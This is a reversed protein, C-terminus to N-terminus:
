AAAPPAVSQREVLEGAIVVPMAPLDEGRQAKILLEVAMSVTEAVPQDIATLPPQVFRVVPTNDFSILSLDEPVKLGLSQALDNTAITMQDNSAVIATPRDKRGLLTGLHAAVPALSYQEDYEGETPRGLHSMVMVKAGAKLALELTPLAARIRADSTVQGDKVPM